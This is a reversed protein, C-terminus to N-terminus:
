KKASVPNVERFSQIVSQLEQQKQEPIDAPITAVILYRQKATELVTVLATVKTTKKTILHQHTGHVKYQVAPKGNVQTLKTREIQSQYFQAATRNKVLSAYRSLSVGRIKPQAAVVLEINSWNHKVSIQYKDSPMAYNIDGWSRPVEVQTKKDTSTITFRSLKFPKVAQQPTQAVQKSKPQSTQKNPKPPSQYIHTVPAPTNNAQTHLNIAEKLIAGSVVFVTAAFLYSSLRHVNM